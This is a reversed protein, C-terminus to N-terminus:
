ASKKNQRSQRKKSAMIEKQRDLFEKTVARGRECARCPGSGGCIPCDRERDEEIKPFDEIM